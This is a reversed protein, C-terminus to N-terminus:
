GSKVWGVPIREYRRTYVPLLMAAQTEREATAEHERTAWRELRRMVFCTRSVMGKVDSCEACGNEEISLWLLWTVWFAVKFAWREASGKGHSGAAGRVSTSGSKCRACEVVENISRRVDSYELFPM